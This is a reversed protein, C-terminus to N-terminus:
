NNFLTIQKAKNDLYYEEMKQFDETNLLLQWGKGVMEDRSYGSLKVFAANVMEFVMNEDTVALAMNNKEFALEFIAEDTSGQKCYNQLLIDQM